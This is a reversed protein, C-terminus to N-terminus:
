HYLQVTPPRLPEHLENFNINFRLTERSNNADYCHLILSGDDQQLVHILNKELSADKNTRYFDFGLDQIIDCLISRDTYTGDVITSHENHLADLKDLTILDSEDITTVSDLTNNIPENKHETKSKDKCSTISFLVVVYFVLKM